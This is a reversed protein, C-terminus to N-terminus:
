SVPLTPWEPNAFDVTNEPLDRLAQRYELWEVPVPESTELNRLIVWDSAAIRRDREARLAAWAADLAEAERQAASIIQSADPTWM